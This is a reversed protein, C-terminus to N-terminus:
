CRGPAGEEPVFNTNRYIEPCASAMAFTSFACGAVGGKILLGSMVRVVSAAPARAKSAPWAEAAVGVGVVEVAVLRDAGADTDRGEGIASSVAM